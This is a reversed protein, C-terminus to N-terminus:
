SQEQAVMFLYFNRLMAATAGWIFHTGFSMATFHRIEGDYTVARRREHNAPDLLFTLPVEFAEDVEFSDLTLRFPPHVLAVIPSVRFGTVTLYDTLRGIVEVHDRALGIEEETERLATAVVDVDHAEASGGPFSVQGAHANLHATRETFLMTPGDERLVIPVLVSASVYDNTGPRFRPRRTEDTPEPLWERPAAFIQRLREAGLSAGNIAPGSATGIVTATDLDFPPMREPTPAPTGSDDFPDSM